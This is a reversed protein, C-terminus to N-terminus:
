SFLNDIDSDTAYEINTGGGGTSNGYNIKYNGNKLLHVHLQTNSYGYTYDETHEAKNWTGKM